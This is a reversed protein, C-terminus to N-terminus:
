DNRGRVFGPAAITGNQVKQIDTKRSELVRELASGDERTLDQIYRNYRELTVKVSAHGLVRSVWTISEGAAIAHTAFTHRMNKPPRYALGALRCLYAFKKRLLADYWPNGNPTLFIHSGRLGTRAEQVVFAELVQPRLPIERRSHKTKPPGEAGSHHRTERILLKRNFRDLHHWKLASIEGPRLGTRYWILMMEYYNPAKAKITALFHVIEDMAFPEIETPDESLRGIGRCPYEELVGREHARYLAMCLVKIIKDNITSAKMGADLLTKRYVLLEHDTIESLLYDGFAPYLHTRYVSNWTAATNPRLSKEAMWEGWWKGFLPDRSQETRFLHAAAGQPFHRLYDFTGAKLEYHIAANKAQALKRNKANDKLRTAERRRSRRGDPLYCTFDIYLYGRKTAVSM